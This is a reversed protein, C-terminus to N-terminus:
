LVIRYKRPGKNKGNGVRDQSLHARSLVGFHLALARLKAGPFLSWGGKCIVAVCAIEPRCRSIDMCICMGDSAAYIRRNASHPCSLGGSIGEYKQANTPGFARLSRASSVRGKKRPLSCVSSHDTLRMM